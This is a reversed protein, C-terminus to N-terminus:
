VLRLIREAKKMETKWRVEKENEKMGGEVTHSRGRIADRKHWPRGSSYDWSDAGRWTQARCWCTRGIEHQKKESPNWILEQRVILHFSGIAKWELTDICHKQFFSVFNEKILATHLAFVINIIPFRVPNQQLANLRVIKIREKCRM